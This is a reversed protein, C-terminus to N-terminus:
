ERTIVETRSTRSSQFKMVSTTSTIRNITSSTPSPSPIPNSTTRTPSNLITITTSTLPRPALPPNQDHHTQLTLVVPTLEAAVVDSLGPFTRSFTFVFSFLRSLQLLFPASRFSGREGRREWLEEWRKQALLSKPGEFTLVQSSRVRLVFASFRSALERVLSLAPLDGWRRCKGERGRRRGERTLERSRGGGRRVGAGNRCSFRM